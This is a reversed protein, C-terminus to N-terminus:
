FSLQMKAEVEVFGKLTFSEPVKDAEIFADLRVGNGKVLIPMLNVDPIYIDLCIRNNCREQNVFGLDSLEQNHKAMIVKFGEEVVPDRKLEVFITHDKKLTHIRSFYGQLAPLTELFNRTKKTNKTYIIYTNEIKTKRLYAEPNKSSYRLLVAENESDLNLERLFPESQFMSKLPSYEEDLSRTDVVPKWSGSFTMKQSSVKIAIKELFKFNVNAKGKLRQWWSMERQGEKPDIYFFVRKLRVEKLIDTPLEPIPQTLSVQQIDGLGMRAGFDMFIRALGGVLFGINSVPSEYAMSDDSIPFVVPLITLKGDGYSEATTKAKVGGKITSRNGCGVFVMLLCLFLAKIM